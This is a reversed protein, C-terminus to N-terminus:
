QAPAADEPVYDKYKAIDAKEDVIIAIVQDHLFKLM